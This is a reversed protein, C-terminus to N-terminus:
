LFPKQQLLKPNRSTKLFHFSIKPPICNKQSKQKNRKRIDPCRHSIRSNKHPDKKYRLILDVFFTIIFKEIFRVSKLNNEFFSLNKTWKFFTLNNNNENKFIDQFQRSIRLIQHLDKKYLLTLEVLFTIVLIGRDQESKLIIELFRFLVKAYVM